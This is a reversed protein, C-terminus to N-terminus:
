LGAADLRRELAAIREEREIGEAHLRQVVAILPITLREYNIGQPDGDTNNFVYEHLGAAAFYEAIAGLEFTADKGVREVEGIYRFRVLSVALLADVLKDTDAPAFDQKYVVSSATAGLRGDANFWASVYSSTVPTARGHPSYIDGGINADGTTTLTGTNVATALVAYIQGPLDNVLQMLKQVADATQTGSPRALENVQARLESLMRTLTDIADDDPTRFGGSM